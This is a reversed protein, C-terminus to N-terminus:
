GRTGRTHALTGARTGCTTPPRHTTYKQEEPARVARRMCATCQPITCESASRDARGHPLAAPARSRGTSPATRHHWRRRQRRHYRRRHHHRSHEQRRASWPRTQQRAAARPPPGMSLLHPLPPGGRPAPPPGSCCTTGPIHVMHRQGRARARACKNVAADQCLVHSLAHLLGPFRACARTHATRM